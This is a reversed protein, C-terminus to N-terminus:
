TLCEYGPGCCSASVFNGYVHSTWLYLVGAVSHCLLSQNVSCLKVDSFVNYALHNIFVSRYM